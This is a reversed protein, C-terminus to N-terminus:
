VITNRLKSKGKNMIESWKNDNWLVKSKVKWEWEIIKYLEGVLEEVKDYLDFRLGDHDIFDTIREIDAKIEKVLSIKFQDQVQVEIDSLCRSCVSSLVAVNHYNKVGKVHIEWKDIWKVIRTENSDRDGTTPWRDMVKIVKKYTVLCHDRMYLASFMKEKNIETLCGGIVALFMISQNTSKSM